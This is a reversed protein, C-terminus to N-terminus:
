LAREILEVCRDYGLKGSNLCLDYNARVGWEQGAYLRCYDRRQRDRQQIYADTDKMLINDVTNARHRREAMSSSYIFVDLTRRTDKLAEAACRGIFICPGEMALRRITEAQAQYIKYPMQGAESGRFNEVASAISYLFSKNVKEDNSKMLDLHIGYKEGAMVLLQGDYYPINLKESLRRGIERGGSGYEREITITRLKNM